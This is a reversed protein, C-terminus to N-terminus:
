VALATNFTSVWRDGHWIMVTRGNMRKRAETIAQEDTDCQIEVMETAGTEHNRFILRYLAVAKRGTKHSRATSISCRNLRGNDIFASARLLFARAELASCTHNTHHRSAGRNNGYGLTALGCLKLNIRLLTV